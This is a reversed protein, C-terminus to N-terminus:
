NEAADENAMCVGSERGGEGGGGGETEWTGLAHAEQIVFESSHLVDAMDHLICVHLTKLCREVVATHFYSPMTLIFSTETQFM